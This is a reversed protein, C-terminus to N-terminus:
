VELARTDCLCETCIHFEDRDPALGGAIVIHYIESGRNCFECWNRVGYYLSGVYIM